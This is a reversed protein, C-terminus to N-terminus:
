LCKKKFLSSDTKYDYTKRYIDYKNKKGKKDKVDVSPIENFMSICKGKEKVSCKKCDNKLHKFKPCGIQTLDLMPLMDVGVKYTQHHESNLISSRAEVFKYGMEHLRDSLEKAHNWADPSYVDYDPFEDKTYLGAGHKELHEHLAQGGYLKLGKERIFDEVIKYPNKLGMKKWDEKQRRTELKVKTEENVDAISELKKKLSKMINNYSIFKSM